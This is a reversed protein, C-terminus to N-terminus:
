GPPLPRMSRTPCSRLGALPGHHPRVVLAARGEALLTVKTHFCACWFYPGGSSPLSSVIEAMAVGIFMTMSCVLIRDVRPPPSLQLRGVSHAHMCCSLNDLPMHGPASRVMGMHRNRSRWEDQLCACLWSCAHAGKHGASCPTGTAHSRVMRPYLQSHLLCLLTDAHADHSHMTASSM